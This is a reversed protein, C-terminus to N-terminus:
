PNEYSIGRASYGGCLHLRSKGYASRGVFTALLNRIIGYTQLPFCLKEQSAAAELASIQVAMRGMKVSEVAERLYAFLGSGDGLGNRLSQVSGTMM